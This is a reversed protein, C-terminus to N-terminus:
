RPAAVPDDLFEDRITELAQTFTELPQAGSVAYKVHFVFFPVGQIGIRSAAAIDIDVAESFTGSTLAAEAADRDLGVEDALRLLTDHDGINAGETFYARFLRQMLEHQRGETLAYHSLEHARRTNTALALDFRYDLGLERGRETLQANMAAAQDAPFNKYTAMFEDLPMATDVPLDPMLQFSHYEIDVLDRHEFMALAQALLADGMLCFPCM